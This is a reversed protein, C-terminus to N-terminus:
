HHCICAFCKHAQFEVRSRIPQCHKPMLNREWAMLCGLSEPGPLSIRGQVCLDSIDDNGAWATYDDTAPLWGFGGAVSSVEENTIEQVDACHRASRLFFCCSLIRVVAERETDTTLAWHLLQVWTAADVTTTPSALAASFDLAAPAHALICQQHEKFCLEALNVFIAPDV